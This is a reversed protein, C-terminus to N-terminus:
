TPSTWRTQLAMTRKDQIQNDERWSALFWGGSRSVVSPANHFTSDPVTMPEARSPWLEPGPRLRESRLRIAADALLLATDPANTRKENMATQQTPDYELSSPYHKLQLGLIWTQNARGEYETALSSNCVALVSPM